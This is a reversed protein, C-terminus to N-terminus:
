PVPLLPSVQRRIFFACTQIVLAFSVMSATLQGLIGVDPGIVKSVGIEAIIEGLVAISAIVIAHTRRIPPLWDFSFLTVAYGILVRLFIKWALMASGLIVAFLGAPANLRVFMEPLWRFNLAIFLMVGFMMPVVFWRQEDSQQTM